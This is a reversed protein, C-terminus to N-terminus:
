SIIGPLVSLILLAAMTYNFMKLQLPKKLLRRIHTGAVTWILVTPINILGFACTVVLVAGFSQDPSFTTIATLGMAWAKPNVWQFLCAQLFTIPKGTGKAKDPAGANAVKYALYFLYILCAYKLVLLVNPYLEFVQVLAIGVLFIMVLFGTLVGILHPLTRRLGFNTGSAMLMLNNPGPTIAAVFVFLGLASLTEFDM